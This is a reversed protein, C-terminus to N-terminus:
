QCYAKGQSLHRGGRLWFPPPVAHVATRVLYPITCRGICASVLQSYAAYYTPTKWASSKGVSTVLLWCTPRHRLFYARVFPELLKQLPLFNHWHTSNSIVLSVAASLTAPLWLFHLLTRWWKIAQYVIELIQCLLHPCVTGSSSHYPCLRQQPSCCALTLIKASTVASSPGTNNHHTNTQKWGTSLCLVALVQATQACPCM